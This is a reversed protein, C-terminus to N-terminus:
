TESRVKKANGAALALIFRADIQMTEVVGKEEERAFGLILGEETEGQLTVRGRRYWGEGQELKLVAEKATWLHVLPHAISVLDAIPRENDNLFYKRMRPHIETIQQLDIGVPGDAIVAAGFGSSHSLSCNPVTVGPPLRLAPRESHSPIACERPEKCLGMDIALLKAAIRSAAWDRKRTEMRFSNIIAVEDETLYDQIEADSPDGVVQLFLGQIRLQALNM